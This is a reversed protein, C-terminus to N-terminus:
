DHDVMGSGNARITQKKVETHFGEQELLEAGGAVQGNRKARGKKAAQSRKLKAERQRKGMFWAIGIHAVWGFWFGVVGFIYEM